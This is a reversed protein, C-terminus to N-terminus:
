TGSHIATVNEFDRFLLLAHVIWVLWRFQGTRPVAPLDPLRSRCRPILEITCHHRQDCRNAALHRFLLRVGIPDRQAIQRPWLKFAANQSRNPIVLKGPKRRNRHDPLICSRHYIFVFRSQPRPRFHELRHPSNAPILGDAPRMRCDRHCDGINRVRPRSQALSWRRLQMGVHPWPEERAVLRSRLHLTAAIRNTSAYQRAIGGTETTVSRSRNPKTFGGHRNGSENRIM